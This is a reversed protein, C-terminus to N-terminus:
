LSFLHLQILNVVCRRSNLMSVDPGICSWLWPWYCSFSDWQMVLLITCQMFLTPPKFKYLLQGMAHGSSPINCLCLRPKFIFILQGMAHGPPHNIAHVSDPRWFRFHFSVQEMVLPHYISHFSAAENCPWLSNCLGMFLPQGYCSQLSTGLMVQPQSMAHDSAPVKWLWRSCPVAPAHCFGPLTWSRLITGHMAPPQNTWQMVTSLKAYSSAPATCSRLSIIHMVPPQHQICSRLSTIRM